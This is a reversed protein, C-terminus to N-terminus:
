VARERNGVASERSGVGRRESMSRSTASMTRSARSNASLLEAGLGSEAVVWTNECSRLSGWAVGIGPATPLRCDATPLGSSGSLERLRSEESGVASEGSGM